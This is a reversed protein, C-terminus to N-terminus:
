WPGEPFDLSIICYLSWFTEQARAKPKPATRFIFLGVPDQVPESAAGTVATTGGGGVDEGPQSVPGTVPRKKSEEPFSMEVTFLSVYSQHWM